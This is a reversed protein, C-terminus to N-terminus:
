PAVARAFRLTRRTGADRRGHYHRLVGRVEDMRLVHRILARDCGRASELFQAALRAFPNLAVRERADTRNHRRDARLQHTTTAALVVLMVGFLIHAVLADEEAADAPAGSTRARLRRRIADIHPTAVADGAAGGKGWECFDRGFDIIRASVDRDRCEDRDRERADRERADRCEGELGDVVINGPKLDFVFLHDAALARLCEVVSAGLLDRRAAARARLTASAFVADLDRAHREAIVYLGSPWMAGGAHRANWIAHVRPAAGLESARLTHRCECEASGRQQTDSRRRPARLVCRAGAHECEFVRNNAGRGLERGLPFDDPVKTRPITVAELAVSAAAPPECLRM